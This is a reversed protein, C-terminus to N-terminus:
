SEGTIHDVLAKLQVGATTQLFNKLTPVGRTLILDQTWSNIGDSGIIFKDVYGEIYFQKDGMYPTKADFYLAKGIRVDNKVWLKVIVAKMFYLITGYSRLM